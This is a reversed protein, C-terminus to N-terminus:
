ERTRSYRRTFKYYDIAIGVVILIAIPIALPHAATAASFELRCLHTFATTLGCGLCPNGTLTRWLCPPLIHYATFANLLIGTVAYLLIGVWVIRQRLYAILM